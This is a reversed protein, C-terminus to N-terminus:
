FASQMVALTTATVTTAIGSNDITLTAGRITVNISSLNFRAITGVNAAANSNGTAIGTTM